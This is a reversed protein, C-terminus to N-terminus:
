LYLLNTLLWAAVALSGWAAGGVALTAPGTWDMTRRARGIISPLSTGRRAEVTAVRANITQANM